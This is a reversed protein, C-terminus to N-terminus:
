GEQQFALGDPLKWGDACQERANAGHGGDIATNGAPHLWVAVAPLAM